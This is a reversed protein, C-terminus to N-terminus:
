DKLKIFWMEKASVSIGVKYFMEKYENSGLSGRSGVIGAFDIKSRFRQLPLSFGFSAGYENVPNGSSTQSLRRFFGGARFDMKELLSIFLKNSHTREIGGGISFYETFPSGVAVGSNLYGTKWNQYKFDGGVKWRKKIQYEAGLNLRAPITLTKLTGKDVEDSNTVAQIRYDLKVAPRYVVGLNLKEIPQYFGSLVVGHGYFRYEYYLNLASYTGSSDQYRFSNSITGFTYEYGVGIGLNPKILYSLNAIARSLGGKVVVQSSASGDPTEQKYRQEMGSIPLLGAGFSLKRKLIPITLHGGGFNAVDNFYNDVSGDTGSAAKYQIKVSYSTINIKPWLSYNMYNIQNTDTSAIEYSRGMGPASYPIALMGLSKNSIGFLSEGATLSGSFLVITIIIAIYKKM